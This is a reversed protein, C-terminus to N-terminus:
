VCDGIRGMRLRIFNSWKKVRVGATPMYFLDCGWYRLDGSEVVPLQIILPTNVIVDFKGLVKM